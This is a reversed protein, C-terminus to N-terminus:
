KKGRIADALGSVYDLLPGVEEPKLKKEYGPMKAKGKLLIESLEDRSLHAAEERGLNLKEADIKLAKAKAPNGRGDDGHCSKCMKDYNTKATPDHAAAVTPILALTLVAALVTRMGGIYHLRWAPARRTETAAM